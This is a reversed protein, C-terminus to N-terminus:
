GIALWNITGTSDSVVPTPATLQLVAGTTGVSLISAMFDQSDTGLVILPPADYTHGFDAAGTGSPNTATITVEVSGATNDASPAPGWTADARLVYDAPNTGPDPVAGARHGTGSPKFIPTFGDAM